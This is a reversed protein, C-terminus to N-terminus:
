YFGALNIINSIIIEEFDNQVVIKKELDQLMSLHKFVSELNIFLNISDNPQLFNSSTLSDDYYQYKMLLANFCISFPDYDNFKKSDM